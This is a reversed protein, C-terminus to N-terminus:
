IMQEEICLLRYIHPNKQLSAFRMEVLQDEAFATSGGFLSANVRLAARIDEPTVARRIQIRQHAKRGTRTISGDDKITLFSSLSAIRSRVNRQEAEAFLAQLTDLALPQEQGPHDNIM